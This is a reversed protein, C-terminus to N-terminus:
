KLKVILTYSERIQAVKRFLASAFNKSKKSLERRNTTRKQNEQQASADEHSSRVVVCFNVQWIKGCLKAWDKKLVLVRNSAFTNVNGFISGFQFGREHKQQFTGAVVVTDTM